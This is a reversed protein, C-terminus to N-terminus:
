PEWLDRVSCDLAEALKRLTEPQPKHKGSAFQSVCSQSVNLREALDKQSLDAARMLRALNEAFLRKQDELSRTAQEIDEDDQLWEDLSRTTIDQTDPRLMEQLTIRLEEKDAGDAILYERLLDAFCTVDEHKLRAVEVIGRMTESASFLTRRTEISIDNMTTTM